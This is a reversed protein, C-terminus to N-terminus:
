ENMETGPWKLHQSLHVPDVLDGAELLKRGISFCYLFLELSHQQLLIVQLPPKRLWSFDWLFYVLAALIHLWVLRRSSPLLFKGPLLVLFSLAGSASVPNAIPPIMLDSLRIRLFHLQFNPFYPPTLVPLTQSPSQIENSLKREWVVFHLLSYASLDQSSPNALTSSAPPISLLIVLSMLWLSRHHPNGKRKWKPHPGLTGTHGMLLIIASWGQPVM